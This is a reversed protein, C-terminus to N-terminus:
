EKAEKIAFLRQPEEIGKLTHEGRDEFSVGASTRALDRVTQSVLVEGAASEGSIRAAINVAGGFVNGDEQIVDGAHLGLHLPLGKRSGEAECATAAEIAQRASTFIALVGDGLLKGEIPRGAAESIIRRLSADLGRAKDRFAMDGLKETLATSDVIDAFLIATMGSSAERRGEDGEDLFQRVIEVSDAVSSEVLSADPIAAAIERMTPLTGKVGDTFDILLTPAQVHELSDRVDIEVSHEYYAFYEDATMSARCAAAWEAAEESSTYNLVANAVALMYNEWEDELMETLGRAIRLSPAHRYFDENSAAGEALVLRTVRDPHSAAFAIAIPVSNTHAYLPFRALGLHDVVTELDTLQASLSFDTTNHDSAGMGRGDYFVLKRNLADFSREWGDYTRRMHLTGWMASAIVLPPGDGIVSYAINVGDSTKAYQIRPEM